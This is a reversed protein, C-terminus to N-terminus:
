KTQVCVYKCYRFYKEFKSNQIKMDQALDAFSAPSLDALEYEEKMNYLKYWTPKGEENAVDL